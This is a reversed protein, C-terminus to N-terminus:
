RRRYTTKYDDKYAEEESIETEQSEAKRKKKNINQPNDREIKM